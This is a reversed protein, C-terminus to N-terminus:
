GNHGADSGGVMHHTTTEWNGLAKIIENVARPSLIFILHGRYIEQRVIFESEMIVASGTELSLRALMEDLVAGLMDYAFGPVSYSFKVKLGDALVKVFSGTLINGLERLASIGMEDLHEIREVHQGTLVNALRLSENSSFALIVTGSIQGTVSFHIASVPKEAGGLLEPVKDLAEMMVNPVTIDVRRSLMTSLSTAAQCTAISSIERFADLRIQDFEMHAM